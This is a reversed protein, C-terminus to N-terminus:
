SETTLLRNIIIVEKAILYCSLAIYWCLCVPCCKEPQLCNSLMTNFIANFIDVCVVGLVTFGLVKCATSYAKYKAGVPAYPCTGKRTKVEQWNDILYSLVGLAKLYFTFCYLCVISQVTISVAQVKDIRIFVSMNYLAPILPYFCPYEGSERLLIM